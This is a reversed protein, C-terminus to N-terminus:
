AIRRSGFVHDLMNGGGGPKAGSSWSRLMITIFGGSCVRSRPRTLWAKVGRRM